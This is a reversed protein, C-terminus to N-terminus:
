IPGGIVPGRSAGTLGKTSDRWIRLQPAQSRRDWRTRCTIRDMFANRIRRGGVGLWPWESHGAGLGITMPSSVSPGNNTM